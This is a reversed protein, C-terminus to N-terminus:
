QEEMSENDVLDGEVLSTYMKGDLHDCEHCVATALLEEGELIYEDMEEDFFRVKVHNPRTVM